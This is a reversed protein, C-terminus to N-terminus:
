PLEKVFDNACVGGVKPSRIKTRQAEILNNIGEILGNSSPAGEPVEVRKVGGAGKRSAVAREQVHDVAAQCSMDFAAELEARTDTDGAGLGGFVVEAAFLNIDYAACPRQERQVGLSDVFTGGVEFRRGLQAGSPPDVASM